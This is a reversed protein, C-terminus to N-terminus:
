TMRTNPLVTISVVPLGSWDRLIGERPRRKVPAQFKTDPKAVFLSTFVQPGRSVFFFGSVITAMASDVPLAGEPPKASEKSNTQWTTWISALSEPLMKTLRESFSENMKDKIFNDAAREVSFGM